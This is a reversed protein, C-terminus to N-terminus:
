NVSYKDNDTGYFCLKIGTISTFILLETHSAGRSM